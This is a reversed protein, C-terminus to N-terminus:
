AACHDFLPNPEDIAAAIDAEHAGDGLGGEVMPTIDCPNDRFKQFGALLQEVVHLLGDHDRVHVGALPQHELLGVGEHGQGAADAGQLLEDLLHGPGLEPPVGLRDEHEAGFPEPLREQGEEGM